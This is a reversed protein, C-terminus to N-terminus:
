SLKNKREVEFKVASQLDPIKNANCVKNLRTEADLLALALWRQRQSSNVWRTIKRLRKEVHANISEICNTTRFSKSFTKMINLRQLTLCEELGELISNAANENLKRLELALVLLRKKAQEYNNMAYAGQLEPKFYEVQKDSLHSLINELKHWQCRQIVACNGFVDSIAKHLAKSGDIVCLIGDCFNFGRGIINSLLEKVAVANETTTQSFDLAMKKGTDTVGVVIVMRQQQIEKGDIFLAVFKEQSIDREQFEKLAKSSEEIFAQSVENRSLGFGDIFDNSVREYDRTSIGCFVKDMLTSDVTPKNRLEKYIPPEFTRNEQSDRIRPVTIPINEGSVKVSGPNSGWRQYRKDNPKSHSYKDGSLLQVDTTLLQNVVLRVVEHYQNLFAVQVEPSSELLWSLTKDKYYTSNTEM